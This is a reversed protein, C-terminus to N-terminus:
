FKLRLGLGVGSHPRDSHFKTLFGGSWGDGMEYWLPRTQLLVVRELRIEEAKHTPTRSDHKQLSWSTSIITVKRGEPKPESALAPHAALLLPLIFLARM